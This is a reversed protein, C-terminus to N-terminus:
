LTRKGAKMRAEAGVIDATKGFAVEPLSKGLDSRSRTPYFKGWERETPEGRPVETFNEPTRKGAKM